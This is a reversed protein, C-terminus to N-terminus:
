SNELFESSPNGGSGGKSKEEIEALERDVEKTGRLWELAERAERPRGQEVLWYPSEPIVLCLGLYLLM